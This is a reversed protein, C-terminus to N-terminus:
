VVKWTRDSKMLEVPMSKIRMENGTAKTMYLSMKLIELKDDKCRIITNTTSPIAHSLINTIQSAQVYDNFISAIFCSKLFLIAYVKLLAAWEIDAVEEVVANANKLLPNEERIGNDANPYKQKTTTGTLKANYINYQGANIITYSFLTLYNSIM